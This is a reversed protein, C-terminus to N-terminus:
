GVLIYGGGDKSNGVYAKSQNKKSSFMFHNVLAPVSLKIGRHVKGVRSHNIMGNWPNIFTVKDGKIGILVLAHHKYTFRIGKYMTGKAKVIVPKGEKLHERIERIANSKTFVSVKKNPIGMDTLIQSALKLSIAGDKYKAKMKKLAYRESKKSKVSGFHIQKPTVKVGFGSAAIAVATTICGKSTLYVCNQGSQKYCHYRRSKGAPSTVRVFSGSKSWSGPKYKSKAFSEMSVSSVCVVLTLVLILLKGWSISKKM